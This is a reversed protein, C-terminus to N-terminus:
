PRFGHIFFSLFGCIGAMKKRWKNFASGQHRVSCCGALASPRGGQLWRSRTTYPILASHPPNTDKKFPPVGLWWGNWSSTQERYVLSSPTGGHRAPFGFRPQHYGATLSISLTLIWAAMLWAGTLMICWGHLDDRCSAIPQFTLHILM